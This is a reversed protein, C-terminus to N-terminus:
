PVIIYGAARIAAEVRSRTQETEDDRAGAIRFATGAPFQALKARLDRDGTLTYQAIHIREEDFFSVIEVPEPSHADRIWQEVETRCEGSSCLALLRWLEPAGLVWAGARGLADRLVRELRLNEQGAPKRLDAERGKWWSRFYEMAEWLPKEAATSGYRGLVEAAGRKIPVVPSMLHEIALKELAPSMAYPGLSEFASAIDYCRGGAFAKRLEKEGFAPDFKLFYFVLPFDCHPLKQRDLEANFALYGAEVQRVIAGTAYRTILQVPLPGGRAVRAAFVDNLEPLSEDPLMMLTKDGIGSGETRHLEALILERGRKPDLEVIRRLAIERLSPYGPPPQPPNEYLSNLLPLIDHHRLLRWRSDLLSSQMPAPLERFGAILSEVVGNLWPPRSRSAQAVSLLAERTLARAAPEKNPLAQVLIAAFRDRKEVILSARRQSEAQWVPRGTETAPYPPMVGGSEVLVALQSLTSLFRASIAQEPAVLLQELVPLLETRHSSALIGSHLAFADVSNEPPLRKALATGSDLTNLFRLALGARQRAGRSEADNGAPADLIATATAIQESVWEPPAAGIELTLVNSVVEVPKSVASAGTVQRARRSLVYVRYTGPGRFRVWENLIREVTFAKGPTLTVNGGSLGGMGGTEGPLGRLPDEAAAAPDARFEDLYNLRGVRDYLRSDTVFTGPEDATFSLTLPITEGAHFATKPAAIHLHIHAPQAGRLAQWGAIFADQARVAPTLLMALWLIRPYRRRLTM